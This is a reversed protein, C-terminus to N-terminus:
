LGTGIPQTKSKRKKLFWQYAWYINKYYVRDRAEVARIIEGGFGRKFRYVGWLGDSREQFQNELESEPFDPVGWLDYEVCGNRAAWRMAEWQILYAPMRNREENSTGGFLYWARKGRRFVMLGALIKEGYTAILLECHGNKSFLEYALRYYDATHVGFGDRSGTVQMLHSFASLNNSKDVRVDKREALRINYRTKQKMRNLWDDETGLLSVSMTRRPQITDSPMNAFGIVSQREANKENEWLDPEVKLFITREQRAIADINSWLTDWHKGVPGKPIYGASFGLPLNKFLVMAGSNEQTIYRPKWGFRSKLVGWEPSQLIHADPFRRLWTGWEQSNVIEM